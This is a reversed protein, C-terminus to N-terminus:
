QSLPLGWRRGHARIGGVNPNIPDARSLVNKGLKNILGDPITRTQQLSVAEAKGPATKNGATIGGISHGFGNSPSYTIGLRIGAFNIEGGGQRTRGREWVGTALTLRNTRLETPTMPRWPRM